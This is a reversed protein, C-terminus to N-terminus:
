KLLHQSLGKGPNSQKLAQFSVLGKQILAGGVCPHERTNSLILLLKVGQM